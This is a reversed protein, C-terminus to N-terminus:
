RLFDLLSMQIARAGAALSAQFANQQKQMEMYLEAIDADQVNSRLREVRTLDEQNRTRVAELRQVSVGVVGSTTNVQDIGTALNGISAVVGPTDEAALSDRLAILTAFLDQTQTFAQDGPLNSQVRVGDAVEAYVSDSIGLSNATVATIKGAGDRTVSFPATATQIGGFIYRGAYRTNGLSVMEELLQNVEGALPGRSGNLYDNSGRIAIEKAQGLVDTVQALATGTNRLSEQTTDTTRQFEELAAKAAQFRLVLSSGIADDSPRNIRKTTALQEQTKALRAYSDVITGLIQTALGNDTIRM